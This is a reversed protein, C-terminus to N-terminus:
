SYNFDLMGQIARPQLGYVFSRTEADFPRYAPRTAARGDQTPADDFRVVVDDPQTRRGSPHITGVDSPTPITASSPTAPVVHPSGPATIPLSVPAAKRPKM